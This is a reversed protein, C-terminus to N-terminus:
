PQAPKALTELIWRGVVFACQPVVANGLAKMRATRNAVSRPAVTRPPEEAHQAQGRGAPWRHQDVGASLGDVDRGMRSETNGGSGGGLAPRPAAGAGILGQLGDRVGDALSSGGNGTWRREDPKAGRSQRQGERNADALGVVFIRARRHPAGVDEASIALATTDYGLECLGERVTPLWRKAGSAVNEVVVIRPGLEAVLRKFEYWLGSRSGELGAGKGAASVDQCPRM